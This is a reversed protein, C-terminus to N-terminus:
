LFLPENDHVVCDWKCESDHKCECYKTNVHANDANVTDPKANLVM